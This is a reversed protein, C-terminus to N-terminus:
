YSLHAMARLFLLIESRGYANVARRVRSELERYRKSAPHELGSLGHLFVTKQKQM